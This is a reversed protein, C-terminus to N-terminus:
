QETRGTNCAGAAARLRGGAADLYQKAPQAELGTLGMLVALKVRRGSAELLAAATEEGCDLCERIINISRAVLKQNTPRVDVMLNQYVKGMKIMASTSIMNLIMKQATGAKMRTSGTVAEPGTVAEVATRAHLSLDAGSVCSVAGTYAGVFGAYDLAGIVYPTRGSAALGVVADRQSLGRERLDRAGAEANDEAGESSERLARDGGAIVGQVLDPSVGYTPPCESADLVGLRGSTGAGVYFLRGGQELRACIEDVLERLQPLCREVAAAIGADERNIATLIELTTMADISSTHQNRQETELCKLNM